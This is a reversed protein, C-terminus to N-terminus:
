FYINFNGAVVLRRALLQEEQTDFSDPNGRCRRVRMREFLGYGCQIEEPSAAFLSGVQILESPVLDILLLYMVRELRGIDVDSLHRVFLNIKEKQRIPDNPALSEVGHVIRLLKETIISERALFLEERRTWTQFIPPVVSPLSTSVISKRRRNPDTTTTASVKSIASAKSTGESFVVVNSNSRGGNGGNNDDEIEGINNTTNSGFRNSIKRGFRQRSILVSGLAKKGIMTDNFIHDGLQFAFYGLNIMVASIWFAVVVSAVQSQTKHDVNGENATLATAAIVMSLVCCTVLTDLLNLGHTRWPWAMVQVVLFFLLVLALAIVQTFTFLIM